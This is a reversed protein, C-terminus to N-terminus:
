ADLQRIRLPRDDANRCTGTALDFKWGHLTCVLDGGTVEGFVTLDAGRHPCTRQMEYGDIVITEDAMGGRDPSLNRSAEAETRVMREESLSKFFNYVYENFPGRRWASFRCSLFLSNSWDVAREAVVTEVLRRDITFRFGHDGGDWENVTGNPFDIAIKLEGMDIVCVDGVGKRLNPASALLPEWWSKLEDALGATPEAWKAKQDEIFPLWDNQYRRLYAEKDEFIATLDQASCPHTVDIRDQAVEICTGPIALIGTHGSEALQDMFSRQDPFISLENGTIINLGFLDPDLFAPPGASPVVARADLVEVYRM